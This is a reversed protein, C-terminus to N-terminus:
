TNDEKKRDGFLRKRREKNKKGTTDIMRGKIFGIIEDKNINIM